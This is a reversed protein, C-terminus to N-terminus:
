TPLFFLASLLVVPFLLDIERSLLVAQVFVKRATRSRRKCLETTKGVMLFIGITIAWIVANMLGVKAPCLPAKIKQVVETKPKPRHHCSLKEGIRCCVLSRVIIYGDPTGADFHREINSLLTTLGSKGHFYRLMNVVICIYAPSNDGLVFSMEQMGVPLPLTNPLM